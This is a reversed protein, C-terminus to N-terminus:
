DKDTVEVGDRYEVRVVGQEDGGHFWHDGVRDAPLLWTGHEKGDKFEGEWHLVSKEGFVTCYAKGTYPTDEGIRYILGDDKMTLDRDSDVGEPNPVEGCGLLVCALLAMIAAFSVVGATLALLAAQVPWPARRITDWIPM